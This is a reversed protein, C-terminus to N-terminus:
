VKVKRGFCLYGTHGLMEFSPRTGGKGVVIERQLNELVRTEAYGAERLTKITTEAQNMTPVYACIYGSVKLVESVTDLLGWPEPVDTVVADYSGSDTCEKGDGVRVEVIGLLGALTINRIALEANKENLEYTVVKGEPGVHYALAITLAGTGTGVELVRNGPGVGCGMLIQASDKSTIWQPGRKINHLIDDLSTELIIYEMSAVTIVSGSSLSSLKDTDVVGIGEIEQMGRGPFLIFKRGKKDMLTLPNNKEHKM